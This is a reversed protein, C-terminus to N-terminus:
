PAPPASYTLRFYDVDYLTESSAAFSRVLFGVYAVPDYMHHSGLETWADTDGPAYWCSYLTGKKEIRLSLPLSASARGYSDSFGVRYINITQDSGIDLWLQDIANFGVMFVFSNGETANGPVPSIRTEISWDGNGMDTRRLEPANFRPGWHDRGPPISIHLSGPNASLSYTAGSEPELWQWAPSLQASDFDDFLVNPDPTLSPSPTNTPPIPILTSTPATTPSPTATPAPNDPSSTASPIASPTSAQSVEMSTAPSGCATLLILLLFTPMTKM